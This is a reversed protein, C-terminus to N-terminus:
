DGVEALTVICRCVSRRGEDACVVWISVELRENFPVSGTRETRLRMYKLRDRVLFPIDDKSDVELLPGLTPPTTIFNPPVGQRGDKCCKQISQVSSIAFGRVIETLPFKKDLKPSLQCDKCELWVFSM